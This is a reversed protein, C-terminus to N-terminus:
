WLFLSLQKEQTPFVYVERHEILCELYAKIWKLNNMIKELQTVGKGPNNNSDM